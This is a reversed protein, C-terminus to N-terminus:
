RSCNGSSNQAVTAHRLVICSASNMSTSLIKSISKSLSSRLSGSLTAKLTILIVMAFMRIDTLDDSITNSLRALMDALTLHDISTLLCRFVQFSRCALHRVPCTTAWSLAIKGWEAKLEPFVSFMELVSSIMHEMSEPVRLGTEETSSIEDYSWYTKSDRQRVTEIFELTVMQQEHDQEQHLEPIILEHILHILMEKSQEQVLPVYHDWLVFVVQLLLTLKQQMEPVPGVLLDVMLIMALHGFSFGTQKGGVPVCEKLNAVYPFMSGDPIVSPERANITMMKPLLYTALADILKAGNPTESLFVIIQKGYEVFSQERRELSQNIIFDM